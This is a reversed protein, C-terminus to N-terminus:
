NSGTITNLISNPLINAMQTITFLEPNFGGNIDSHYDAFSNQIKGIPYANM